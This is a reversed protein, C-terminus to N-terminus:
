AANRLDDYMARGGAVIAAMALRLAPPLNKDRVRYAVWDLDDPDLSFAWDDLAIGDSSGDQHTV